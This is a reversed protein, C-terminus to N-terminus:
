RWAMRQHLETLVPDPRPLAPRPTPALAPMSFKVQLTAAETSTRPLIKTNVKMGNARANPPLATLFLRTARATTSFPNFKTNVETIFRTIMNPPRRDRDTRTTPTKRRGLEDPLQETELSGIRRTCCFIAKRRRDRARPM